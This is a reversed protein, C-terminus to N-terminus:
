SQFIGSEITKKFAMYLPIRDYRPVPCKSIEKSLSLLFLVRFLSNENENTPLESVNFCKAIFATKLDRLENVALIM